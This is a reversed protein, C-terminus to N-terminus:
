STQGWCREHHGCFRCRFHEPDDTHRPLLEGARTAAIITVARDSWEQARETDFPLLLHLRECTDANIITFLAPNTVELYAQYIWAQVAYQPYHKELGDREIARWGKAGLCKCEWLCPLQLYAGCLDPAATIIGDCHGRLLGDVAKFGLVEDPAFRFGAAILHKRSLAEFVHGRHFIDRLRSSHTADVMWDYQVKRLCESGISSAGLYQRVNTEHSRAAATEIVDNIATNVLQASLCSRNFDM